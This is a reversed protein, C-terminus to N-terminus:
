VLASDDPKQARIAMNSLPALAECDRKPPRQEGSVRNIERASFSGNGGDIGARFVM